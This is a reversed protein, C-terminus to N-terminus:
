LPICSAMNSIGEEEEEEGGGGWGEEEEEDGRRKRRRRVLQIGTVVQQHLHVELVERQWGELSDVQGM